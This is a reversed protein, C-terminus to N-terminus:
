GEFVKNPALLKEITKVIEDLDAPKVLHADFGALQATKKDSLQGYGTLAILAISRTLPEARLRRAVEYGNIDPLGIDIIVAGPQAELVEQLASEGDAVEIVEYSFLRLLESMTTRADANDEVYVLRHQRPVAPVRDSTPALQAAITPVWFSFISGQNVGASAAEANGGHLRVLQRVLALGIGLGSQVRNATAPGQVFPDFVRDLLESEVGVGADQVTVVGRGEDDRVTVTVEGGPESFKLANILLNNLVQDIRLADGSFWVSSAQVTVKHGAAPEMDRLAEVCKNVCDAMDLPEKKLDIKGAMLRSVDLLDDVIHALYRNQRSIIEIYRESGSTGPGSMRLVATASAIAALPNRLEHGLLALFQDKAENEAMTQRVRRQLSANLGLIEEQAQKQFDGLAKLRLLNRVRLLLETREVPKTLFEEAGASLGALRTDRDLLATVMIIPIDSTAPAAKLIGAVEYGDIGSMMIDLLILDPAHEAIDSLADEGNAATRTVYGEPRLLTVLLKRNQVEGDVILITPAATHAM